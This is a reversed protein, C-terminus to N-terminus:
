RTLHQERKWQTPTCKFYRHFERSFYQANDGYGVRRSIEQVSLNPFSAILRTAEEMRLERLEDTFRRGTTERFVRSLYDENAFVETTAIKRLSLGQEPYHQRMASRVAAVTRERQSYFLSGTQPAFDTALDSLFVELEEVREANMVSEAITEVRCGLTDAGVLEVVEYVAELAAHKFLNPRVSHKRAEESMATTARDCHDTDGCRLANKFEEITRSVRDPIENHYEAVTGSLAVIDDTRVYFLDHQQRRIRKFEVALSAAECPNTYLVTRRPTSLKALADPLSALSSAVSGDVTARIVVTVTYGEAISGIVEAGHLVRELLVSVRNAGAPTVHEGLDVVILILDSEDGDIGLRSCISRLEQENEYRGHVLSTLSAERLMRDSSPSNSMAVIAQRENRLEEVTDAIASELEDIRTPKLVYHRVGYEMAKRAFEFESYGSIIVFGPRPDLTQAAAILGIGDLEPMLVDTVILDIQEKRMREIAEQGNRCVATLTLGLRLWGVRESLGRRVLQEDDVIMARM